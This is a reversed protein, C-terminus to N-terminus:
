NHAYKSLLNLTKILVKTGMEYTMNQRISNMNVIRFGLLSFPTESEIFKDIDFKLKNFNPYNTLTNTYLRDLELNQLNRVRVSLLASVTGILVFMFVRFLWTQPTQMLGSVVDQPMWPGIFIGAIIAMFITQWMGFSFATLLIPVYMLHTYPYN